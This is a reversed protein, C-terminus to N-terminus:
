TTVAAAHLARARRYYGLGQWAHLVDDVPAAALAQLDPFRAIFDAFRGRVTAVTTQQLMMESVLVRYPDPSVGPPSRWPLERRARDYWALLTARLEQPPGPLTPRARAGTSVKRIM